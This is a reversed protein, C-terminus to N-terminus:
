QIQQGNAYISGDEKFEIKSKLTDEGDPVAFLGLMMMAGMMQDEPLLGMAVLKQMLANAGVLRLDVAGNPVPMLGANNFTAAGTGTLEAGVASVRVENITLSNLQGPPQDAITEAQVPDFIDIDLKGDGSVDVILTAPDRPLQQTPDLMGWLMESVELGVMKILLGFPQADDSRAVPMKLDFASEAMKVDVPVPFESMQMSMTMPGSDGGYALGDSSLAFRLTGAGGTFDFSGGQPGEIVSKGTGSTYGYTGAMRVGAQLAAALNEMKVGDPMNFEGTGSLGEVSGDFSFSASSEPDTGTVSYTVAQANLSSEGHKGGDTVVHYSGNSGNMTATFNVPTKGQGDGVSMTMALAPANYEYATDAASGSAIISLGSHTITGNVDVPEGGEPTGAARIPVSESMTVEVRGDGMDRLRVEDLGISAAIGLNDQTIAVGSVVLTDGQRESSATAVTQGFGQALDVWGQWVEEPTIDARVATTCLLAAILASAGLGTSRTM